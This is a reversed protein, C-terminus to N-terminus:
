VFFARAVETHREVDDLLDVAADRAVVRRVRETAPRGVFRGGNLFVHPPAAEFGCGLDVFCVPARETQLRQIAAGSLRAGVALAAPELIVECPDSRVWRLEDGITERPERLVLWRRGVVGRQAPTVAAERVLAEAVASADSHEGPLHDSDSIRLHIERPPDVEVADEALAQVDRAKGAERFALLRSSSIFLQRPTRHLM